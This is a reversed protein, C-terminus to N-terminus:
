SQVGLNRSFFARMLSSPRNFELPADFHATDPVEFWIPERAPQIAQLASYLARSQRRFESTEENGVAVMIAPWDLTATVSALNRLRVLPSCHSVEDPTFRLSDQFRTRTLPELDYLGGVLLLARWAAHTPAAEGVVAAAGPIGALFAAMALHAGSSHGAVALRSRDLGLQDAHETVADLARRVATIQNDLRFNDNLPAFNVVLMAWGQDTCARAWFSTEFSTNLQWRGGHVFLVAPVAGSAGQPRFSHVWDHEGRGWQWTDVQMMPDACAQTSLQQLSRLDSQNRPDQNNDYLATLALDPATATDRPDPRVRSM